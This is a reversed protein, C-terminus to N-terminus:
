TTDEVLRATLITVSNSVAISMIQYGPGSSGSPHIGPPVPSQQSGQTSPLHVEQAEESGSDTGDRGLRGRKNKGWSYVRNDTPHTLFITKGM